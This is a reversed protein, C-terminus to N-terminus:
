LYKKFGKSVTGNYGEREFFQHARQRESNSLIM